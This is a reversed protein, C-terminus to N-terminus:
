SFIDFKRRFRIPTGSLTLAGTSEGRFRRGPLAAM